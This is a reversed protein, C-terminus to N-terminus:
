YILLKRTFSAKGTSIRLLYIGPALTPTSNRNWEFNSLGKEQYVKQGKLNYIDLDFPMRVANDIRFGESCPNPYIRFQEQVPLLDDENSVTQSIVIDDLCLAFADWSLCQWALYVQQGAYASLNYTYLTWEAPVNIWPEASIATFANPNFNTGSILFRMRELGYLSTFSRAWFSIEWGNQVTLLPTILWDNNPPNISDISLAMRQGGHAIITTLPPSTQQPNFVMWSMPSGEGPFDNDAFQWTASGDLDYMMWDPITTAFDTVDEFNMTFVPLSGPITVSVTNSPPSVQNLYNVAAVQYWYTQGPLASTDLYETENCVAIVQQNRIVQYGAITGQLPVLWQLRVNMGVTMATLNRPASLTEGLTRFTWVPGSVLVPTHAIVQWQYQTYLALPNSPTWSNVTIGEAVPQLPQGAPALYVDWYLTMDSEWGFVPMQVVDTANDPPSPNHPVNNTVYFYLKVNPRVSVPNGANAVPPAAPSPNISNSYFCISKPDPVGTCFFDDGTNSYGPNNEDVAIVLNGQGAYVFPQALPITVWGQGPLGGSFWDPQWDGEFMLQLSDLPVWDTDSHFRDRAVTGVYISFQNTNPLFINSSVRYNYAIHTILGLVTIESADFISQSYSYYNYPEVPLHANVLTGEGIQVSVQSFLVATSVLFCLAIVARRVSMKEREGSYIKFIGIGGQM